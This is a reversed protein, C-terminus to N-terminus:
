EYPAFTEIFGERSSAIRHTARVTAPTIGWTDLLRRVPAAPARPVFVLEAPQDGEQYIAIRLPGAEGAFATIAEQYGAPNLLTVLAEPEVGFLTFWRAEQLDALLAPGNARILPTVPRLAPLDPNDAAGPPRLRGSAWCWGLGSGLLDDLLGAGRRTETSRATVVPAQYCLPGADSMWAVIGTDSVRFRGALRQYIDQFYHM